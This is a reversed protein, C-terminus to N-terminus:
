VNEVIEVNMMQDKKEHAVEERLGIDGGKKIVQWLEDARKVPGKEKDMFALDVAELTFGATEPFLFYVMPVFAINFVAFIIYTQWGINSL